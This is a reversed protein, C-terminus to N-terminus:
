PGTVSIEASPQSELGDRDTGTVLYTKTEGKAPAAESFATERVTAIKEPGFFKKEYVTYFAIDKEGPAGWALAVRGNATQATVGAPRAPRAKTKVTVTESFDSLLGDRDEAQLRYRYVADDALGKDGYEEGQVRAIRSFEDGAGGAARFLHYAVIEKEPNAKWRLLAAKARGGEGQLGAPPSPRPKTTAAAVPTPDSEVDVRNYATLRYHYTAGDELKGFGRAEDVYRDTARGALTKLLAYEGGKERSVYLKYGEVEEAASPKWSLTVRKVAGGAAKLEEPRPPKGRTVAYAVPSPSTEQGTEEAVTVRYAYRLQDGLGERDAYVVKRGAGAPPAELRKILTFPSSEGASRYVHYHRVGPSPIPDWALRVERILEGQAEVVAVAPITKGRVPSSFGSELEKENYASVRYHYERGDELGKDLYPVKPLSEASGASGSRINVIERYPGQEATARYLRYGKIPLPDASGPGPSWLLQVGKVRGEATLIVPPNPTVATRASVVPSFGSQLGRDNFARVRYFYAHDKDIEEDLYEPKLPQALRAFPGAETGARFIEYGAAAAGPADEWTLQISRNGPRAQLRAPAPFAGVEGSKEKQAQEAIARRIQGSLKRVEGALANEGLAGARATLITKKQEVLFTRSNVLIMTGKKEVSGVVIVNLGLRSGISCASELQDNQQLDHMSLFAELEKRDLLCLSPDEALAGTVLNTVTTGLGAAELNVTVFNFVSVRVPAEAAAALGSISCLLFLIVTLLRKAM